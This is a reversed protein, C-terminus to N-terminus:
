APPAPQVITRKMRINTINNNATWGGPPSVDISLPIPSRRRTHQNLQACFRREGVRMRFLPSIINNEVYWIKVTNLFPPSVVAASYSAYSKGHAALVRM